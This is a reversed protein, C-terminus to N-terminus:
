KAADKKAKLSKVYAVIQAIQEETLQGQFTPMIPQYGAVVKATPNVISERLYQDDATVTQGGELQVRKGLVGDLIPARSLADSRHCSICGSKEFLKQGASAMTQGPAAGTLWRQYDAPKMVIVRGTMGSHETGCYEACFMHYTGPRTAQFWATTYRGPLADMKMRFAPVYFSHIVDESALTLKVPRGTPIHLENIERRGDSHQLKWMWQKGVVYIELAGEPARAAQIYLSAGWVFIGLSLVLPILTWALELKLNESEPHTRDVVASRRYKVAFYAVLVFILTAFFLSMGILVFYLTDVKGSM